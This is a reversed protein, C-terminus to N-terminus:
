SIRQWIVLCIFVTFGVVVISLAWMVLSILLAKGRTVSLRWYIVDAQVLLGIPFSLFQVAPMAVAILKLLLGVGIGVLSSIFVIFLAEDLPVDLSAIWQAAARLFVAGILCGIGLAIPALVIAIGTTNMTNERLIDVYRRRKTRLRIEGVCSGTVQHLDKKGEPTQAQLFHAVRKGM